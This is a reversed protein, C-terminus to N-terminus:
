NLSCFTKCVKVILTQHHDEAWWEEGTLESLDCNLDDLRSQIENAHASLDRYRPYGAHLEDAGQGCSRSNRIGVDKRFTAPFCLCNTLTKRM